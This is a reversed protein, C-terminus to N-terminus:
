NFLGAQNMGMLGMGAGAIGSLASPPAQYTGGYTSQTSPVGRFIDGMFALQQYPQRQRDMIDQRYADMGTQNFQQEMGGLGLLMNVDRGTAGQLAEGLGAQTTGAQTLGGAM